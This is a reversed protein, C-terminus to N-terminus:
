ETLQGLNELVNVKRAEQSPVVIYVTLPSGSGVLEIGPGPNNDLPVSKLALDADLEDNGDGSRGNSNDHEATM